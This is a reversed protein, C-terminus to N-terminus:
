LLVEESIKIKKYIRVGMTSYLAKELVNKEPICYASRSFTYEGGSSSSHCGV